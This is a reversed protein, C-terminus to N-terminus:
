RTKKVANIIGQRLREFLIDIEKETIILPPSLFIQGQFTRVLLGLSKCEKVCLQNFEIDSISPTPSKPRLAGLLGIGHAGVISPLERLKEMKEQFYPSIKRVHELIKEKEFIEINKLSAAASVPHGAYTFGQNYTVNHKKIESILRDSILVAGIPLYGSSLGKASTIIDPQVSFVAESAFWHGLRGFGTVVEDSIFIIDYKDCLRKCEKFYNPPPIVVGGSAQVPEAIFVSVNEPGLELIKSEFEAVKQQSFAEISLDTDARTFDISPLFHIFPLTDKLWLEDADRASVASSLYTSGHYSHTLAIIQRKNPRQKVQNYFYAFRLASDVATSGGTTFFVHKLDGPAIDALKRALLASPKSTFHFPSVYTMELTQEAIANAMEKRGYGIQMCLIGAIGDLYKDGNEDYVYVRHAQQVIMRDPHGIKDLHEWPHLWNENDGSRIHEINNKIKKM